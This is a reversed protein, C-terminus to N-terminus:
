KIPQTRSITSSAPRTTQKLQQAVWIKFSVQDLSITTISTNWRQEERNKARIDFVMDYIGPSTHLIRNALARSEISILNLSLISKGLVEEPSYGTAMTFASNVDYITSNTGDLAMFIFDEKIKERSELFLRMKKENSVHETIDHIVYISGQLSDHHWIPSIEVQLFYDTDSLTIKTEIQKSEEPIVFIDPWNFLVEDVPSGVSTDPLLGAMKEFAPNIFLIRKDRDLVLVGDGINQLIIENAIPMLDLLNHRFLGYALIISSLTFSFPTVDLGRFPLLGLLYLGNGTIFVIVAVLVVFAQSRYARGTKLAHRLLFFIGAFIATYSYFAHFAFYPGHESFMIPLGSLKMMYRDQWLLGHLDNTWAMLITVVPVIALLTLIKTPAKQQFSYQISFILWLVPVFAIAPYHVSSWFKHWAISSSLNEIGYSLSWLTLLALIWMMATAGYVKRRQYSMFAVVASIIAAVFLAVSFSNLSFEM